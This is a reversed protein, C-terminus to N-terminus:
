LHTGATYSGGCLLGAASWHRVLVEEGAHFPASHRSLQAKRFVEHGTAEASPGQAGAIFNSRQWALAHHAYFAFQCGM